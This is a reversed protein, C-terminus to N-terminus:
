VASIFSKALRNQSPGPRRSLNRSSYALTQRRSFTAGKGSDFDIRSTAATSRHQSAQPCGGVQPCAPPFALRKGRSTWLPGRAQATLRADAFGVPGFIAPPARVRYAITPEVM